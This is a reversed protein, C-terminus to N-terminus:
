AWSSISSSLAPKSTLQNKADRVSVSSEMLMYHVNLHRIHHDVPGPLPILRCIHHDVPGPLPILRCIHHDVPGPLPILRRRRLARVENDSEGSYLHILIYVRVLGKSILVISSRNSSETM